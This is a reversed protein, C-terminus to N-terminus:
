EESDSEESSEESDSDSERSYVKIMYEKLHEPLVGDDDRYWRMLESFYLRVIFESFSTGMLVPPSEGDLDHDLDVIEVKHELEEPSLFCTRLITRRGVRALTRVNEENEASTLLYKLKTGPVIPIDHLKCNCNTAVV